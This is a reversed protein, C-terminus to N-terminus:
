LPHIMEIQGCKMKQYYNNTFHKQYFFDLQDKRVRIKEELVLAFFSDFEAILEMIKM